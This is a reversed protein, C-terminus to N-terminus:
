QQAVRGLMAFAGDASLKLGGLRVNGMVQSTLRARVLREAEPMVPEAPTLSFTDSFVPWLYSDGLTTRTGPEPLSINASEYSFLVIRESGTFRVDVSLAGDALRSLSVTSKGEYWKNEETKRSANAVPASFTLRAGSCSFDTGARLVADPRSSWSGSRGSKTRVTLTGDAAGALEVGSDLFGAGEAHMAALADVLGSGHGIVNYRGSVDPCAAATTAATAIGVRGALASLMMATLLWRISASRNQFVQM